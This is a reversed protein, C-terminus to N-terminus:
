RALVGGPSRPSPWCAWPRAWAAAAPRRAAPFRAALAGAGWALALALGILPLYTYRDAMAQSGVQVLGIVPVCRGSTGSGAWPSGPPAGAACGCAGRAHGRLLAAAGARGRRRCRPRPSRTSSRSAPRGSCRASTARRLLAAANALAAASRCTRSRDCLAAAGSPSSPSRPRPRPSRSCRSSRSRALRGLAAGARRRRAVWRGLPWWDLLLLVLPLTVLMPKAMLGAAFCRPWCRTARAGRRPPRWASTPSRLRAGSSAALM